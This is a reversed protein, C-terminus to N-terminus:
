KKNNIALKILNHSIINSEDENSVKRMSKEGDINFNIIDDDLYIGEDYFIGMDALNRQKSLNGTITDSDYSRGIEEFIISSIKRIDKVKFYRKDSNVVFELLAAEIAKKNLTNHKCIIEYIYDVEYDELLITCDKYGIEKLISKNIM